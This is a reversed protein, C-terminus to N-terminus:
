GFLLLIEKKYHGNKVLNECLPKYMLFESTSISKPKIGSKLFFLFEGIQNSYEPQIDKFRRYEETTIKVIELLSKDFLSTLFFSLSNMKM